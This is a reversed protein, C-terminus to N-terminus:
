VFFKGGKFDFNEGDDKNDDKGVYPSIILNKLEKSGDENVVFEIDSINAQFKTSGFVFARTIYDSSNVGTNYQYVDTRFKSNDVNGNEDLLTNKQNPRLENWMSKFDYSGPKLNKSEFFDEFFQFNAASVFRGAGQTMYETKDIELATGKANNDRIWKEDSLESPLPAEDQDWLYRALIQDVSVLDKGASLNYIYSPIAM